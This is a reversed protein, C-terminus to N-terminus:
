NLPVKKKDNAAGASGNSRIFTDFVFEAVDAIQQKDLVTSWAPM